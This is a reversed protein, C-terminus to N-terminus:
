DWLMCAHSCGHMYSGRMSTSFIRIWIRRNMFECPLITLVEVADFFLIVIVPSHYKCPSGSTVPGILQDPPALDLSQTHPVQKRVAFFMIFRIRLHGSIPFFVARCM